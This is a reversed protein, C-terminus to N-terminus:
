VRRRDRPAQNSEDRKVEHLTRYLNTILSLILKPYRIGM